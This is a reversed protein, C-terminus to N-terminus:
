NEDLNERTLLSSIANICWSLHHILLKDEATDDNSQFDSAFIELLIM